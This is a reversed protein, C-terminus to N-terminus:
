QELLVTRGRPDHFDPKNCPHHLAWYDHRGQRDEVVATLAVRAPPSLGAYVKACLRVNGSAPNVAFEIAIQRVPLETRGQRTDTFSYAAWRGSPAFNFEAYWATGVPQWFLEFCTSAWLNDSRESKMRCPIQIAALDGELEYCATLAGGNLAAEARVTTVGEAGSSPHRHLSLVNIASCRLLALRCAHQGVMPSNLLRLAISLRSFFRWGSGRTALRAASVKKKQVRNWTNWAHRVLSSGLSILM